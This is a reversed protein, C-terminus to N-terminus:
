ETGEDYGGREEPQIKFGVFLEALCKECLDFHYTTFDRLHSSNYGGGVVASLGYPEGEVMCTKGCKNCVVDTVIEITRRVRKWKRM